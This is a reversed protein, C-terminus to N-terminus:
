HSFKIFEYTPGDTFSRPLELKPEPFDLDHWSNFTADTPKTRKVSEKIVDPQHDDKISDEFESESNIQESLQPDTPITEIIDSTEDEILIDINSKHPSRQRALKKKSKLRREIKIIEKSPDDTEEDNTWEEEDAYQVTHKSDLFRKFSINSRPM